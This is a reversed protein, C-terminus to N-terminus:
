LLIRFFSVKDVEVTAHSRATIEKLVSGGRGIVSGIASRADAM